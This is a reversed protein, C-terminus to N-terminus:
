NTLSELIYAPSNTSSPIVSSLAGSNRLSAGRINFVEQLMKAWYAATLWNTAMTIQYYDGTAADVNGRFAAVYPGGTYVQTATAMGVAGVNVNKGSTFATTQSVRIRLPLVYADLTKPIRFFGNFFQYSTTLASYAVNIANSNGYDDTVVVPTSSSSSDVLDVTLQGAALGSVTSVEAWFGVAYSTGYNLTVGNGGTGSGFPQAIALKTAGDSLLSLCKTDPTADNTYYPSSGLNINGASSGGTGVLALWSDPVNATTVATQFNAGLLVNTTTVTPDIMTMSVSAGSPAPTVFDNVNGAPLSKISITESGLTAGGTYSDLTCVAQLKEGIVYDNQVGQSNLVSATAQWTSPTSNFSTISGPTATVTPKVIYYQPAAITGSGIMQNIVVALATTLQGDYAPNTGNAAADVQVMDQITKQAMAILSSKAQGIGQQASQQIAQIQPVANQAPIDSGTFQAKINALATNLDFIQPGSAGWTDGGTNPAVISRAGDLTNILRNIVGLRTFLGGTGILTVAM